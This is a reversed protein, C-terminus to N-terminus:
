GATVAIQKAEHPVAKPLTLQLIGDKLEAEVKSEDVAAPLTLRRLFRNSRWEDHITSEDKREEYQRTEGSMFLVDDKVSIEIEEPKFGPIEASVFIMNNKETIKVPVPRLFEGEARFWDDLEKGFEGGRERFFDFARAATKKTLEAFREFMKEAEVYLPFDGPASAPTRELEKKQTKAAISGNTKKEDSM